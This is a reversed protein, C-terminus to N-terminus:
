RSLHDQATTVDPSFLRCPYCAYGLTNKISHKTSLHEKILDFGKATRVPDGCSCLLDNCSSEGAWVDRFYKLQKGVETFGYHTALLVGAWSSIIKETPTTAAVGKRIGCVFLGKIDKEKVLTPYILAQILSQLDALYSM